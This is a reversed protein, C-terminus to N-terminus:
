KQEDNGPREPSIDKGVAKAAKRRKSIHNVAVAIAAVVVIFGLVEM